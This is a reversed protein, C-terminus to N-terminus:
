ATAVALQAVYKGKPSDRTEYTAAQRAADREFADSPDSIAMGDGRHTGAVPGHAQQIVHALEHALTQRGWATAPAYAGQSFAVHPGVTYADAGSYNPRDAPM